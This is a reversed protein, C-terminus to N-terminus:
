KDISMEIEKLAKQTLAGRRIQEHVFLSYEKDNVAIHGFVWDKLTRVFRNPVFLSGESYEKVAALIDKILHEHMKKHNHYDPFNVAHLLKLEANFHFNVYKVLNSMVEKFVTPLVEDKAVCARYLQNVLNVLQHHQADILEIGTAYREEWVVIEFNKAPEQTESIAM